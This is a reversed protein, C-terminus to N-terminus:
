ATRSRSKNLLAQVAAQRSASPTAAPTAARVPKAVVPLEDSLEEELEEAYDDAASLQDLDDEADETVQKSLNVGTLDVVNEDDHEVEYGYSPKRGKKSPAVMGTFTVRVMQGKIDNTLLNNMRTKGWVGVYGEPTQFVHLKGPGYDSETDKSGMFYGEISKPNGDGGLKITKSVQGDFKKKFAM